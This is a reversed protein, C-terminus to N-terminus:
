ALAEGLARITAVKAYLPAWDDRAEIASWLMEVEDILLSCPPGAWHPHDRSKRPTYAALANRLEDWDAGDPVRGGFADHFFGDLGAGTTRLGRETAQVVALDETAGRPM